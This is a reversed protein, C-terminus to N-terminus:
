KNDNLIKTVQKVPICFIKVVVAKDQLETVYGIVGGFIDMGALEEALYTNTTGLTIIVIGNELRDKVEKNASIGKAILRKSESVTLRATTMYEYAQQSTTETIEKEKPQQMCSSFSLVIATVLIYNITKM